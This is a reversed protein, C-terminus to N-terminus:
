KQLTSVGITAEKSLGPVVMFEDSLRIDEFYFHARLAETIKVYHGESARAIEMPKRLRSSREIQAAIDPRLCSFTAGSYFLAYVTKEGVSGEFRLPIRINGMFQFHKNLICSFLLM